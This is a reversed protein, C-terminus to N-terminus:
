VHCESYNPSQTGPIRHKKLKVNNPIVDNLVRYMPMKWDTPIFNSPLTQWVKKWDLAPSTTEVRPVVNFILDEYIMKTTVQDPRDFDVTCQSWERANRDLGLSTSNAYIYDNPMTLMDKIFLAKAKLAVSILALGGNNAKLSLQNREIRYLSGRWLFDGLLKRIKGIHKNEAPMVQAVYWLKSLVFL